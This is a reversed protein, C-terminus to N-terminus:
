KFLNIIKSLASFRSAYISVAFLYGFCQLGSSSQPLTKFSHLIPIMDLTSMINISRKQQQNMIAFSLHWLHSFINCHLYTFTGHVLHIVRYLYETKKCGERVGAFKHLSFKYVRKNGTTHTQTQPFSNYYHTSFKILDM